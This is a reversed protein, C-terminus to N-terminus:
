EAAEKRYPEPLPMWAIVHHDFTWFTTGTWIDITTFESNDHVSVLLHQEGDPLRESCPIWQQATQEVKIEENQYPCPSDLYCFSRHQASPCDLVDQAIIYPGHLPNYITRKLLEQRSILDDM